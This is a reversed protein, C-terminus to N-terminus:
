QIDTKLRIFLYKKNRRKGHLKEIHYITNKAIAFGDIVMPLFTESFVLKTKISFGFSYYFIPLSHPIMQFCKSSYQLTKHKKSRFHIEQSIQGKQTKKRVRYLRILISLLCWNTLCEIVYNLFLFLFFASICRWM